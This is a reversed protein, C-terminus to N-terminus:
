KRVEKKSEEALARLTEGEMVRLDDFVAAQRARPVARLRMVFPLPGYDLGSIGSPGTRWQTSLDIFLLISPETDPWVDIYYQDAVLAPTLGLM